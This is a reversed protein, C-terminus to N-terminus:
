RKAYNKMQFVHKVSLSIHRFESGSFFRDQFGWPLSPILMSDMTKNLKKNVVSSEYFSKTLNEKNKIM